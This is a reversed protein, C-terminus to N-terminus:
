ACVCVFLFVVKVHKKERERKKKVIRKKETTKDKRASQKLVFAVRQAHSFM